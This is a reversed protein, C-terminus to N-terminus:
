YNVNFVNSANKSCLISDVTIVPQSTQYNQLWKQTYIKTPINYTTQIIFSTDVASKYGYFDGIGIDVKGSDITAYIHYLTFTDVSTRHMNITLKTKPYYYLELLGPNQKLQHLSDYLYFNMNRYNNYSEFYISSDYIERWNLYSKNLISTDVSESFYFSGNADTVLNAISYNYPINSSTQEVLTLKVGKIPTNNSKDWAVGQIILMDCNGTCVPMVVTKKCSNLCSSLVTITILCFLVLKIYSKMYNNKDPNM